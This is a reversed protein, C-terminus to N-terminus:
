GFAPDNPRHQNKRQALRLSEKARDDSQLKATQTLILERQLSETSRPGYHYDFVRQETTM